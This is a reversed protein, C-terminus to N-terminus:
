IALQQRQGGSLESAPTNQFREFRELLDAEELFRRTAGRYRRTPMSWFFGRDTGANVLALNEFATMSPVVGISVDQFVSVVRAASGNGRTGNLEVQGSDLPFARRICNLLTSKGSGNHGVVCLIQGQDLSFSLDSLAQVIRGGPTTYTKSVNEVSLYAM